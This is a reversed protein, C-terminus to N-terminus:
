RNREDMRDKAEIILDNIRRMASIEGMVYRFQHVEDYTNSALQNKLREIEEGVLNCLEREFLSDFTLM